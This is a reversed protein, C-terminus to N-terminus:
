WDESVDVAWGQDSEPEESQGYQKSQSTGRCELDASMDNSPGRRKSKDSSPKRLIAYPVSVTPPVEGPERLPPEEWQAARPNAKEQRHQHDSESISSETGWLTAARAAHGSISGYTFRRSHPGTQSLALMTAVGSLSAGTISAAAIWVGISIEPFEWTLLKVRIRPEPNIVAVYLSVLFPALTPLLLLRSLM